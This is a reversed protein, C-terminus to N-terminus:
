FFFDGVVTKSVFNGINSNEVITCPKGFARTPKFFLVLGVEEPGASEVAGRPSELVAVSECGVVRCARRLKM